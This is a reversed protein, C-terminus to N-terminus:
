ASHHSVRQVQIRDNTLHHVLRMKLQLNLCNLVFGNTEYTATSNPNAIMSGPQLSCLLYGIYSVHKACNSKRAFRRLCLSCYFPRIKEHVNSMHTMLNCRKRFRLPCSSCAFPKDVDTVGKRKSVVNLSSSGNTNSGSNNVNKTDVPKVDCPPLSPHIKGEKGNGNRRLQKYKQASIKTTPGLVISWYDGHNRKLQPLIHNLTCEVKHKLPEWKPKQQFVDPSAPSCHPQCNNHLEVQNEENDMSTFSNSEKSMVDTSRSSSASLPQIAKELEDLKLYKPSACALSLITEPSSSSSWAAEVNKIFSNFDPIVKLGQPQQM